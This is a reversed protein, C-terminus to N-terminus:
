SLLFLNEKKWKEIRKRVELFSLMQPSVAGEQNSM